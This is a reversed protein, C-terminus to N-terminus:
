ICHHNRSCWSLVQTFSKYGEGVSMDWLQVRVKQGDLQVTHIIFDIVITPSYQSDQFTKNHFTAALSSKGVHSAGVVLVKFVYSCKHAMDQISYIIYMFFPIFEECLYQFFSESFLNDFLRIISTGSRIALKTNYSITCKSYLPSSM